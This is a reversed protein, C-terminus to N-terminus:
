GGEGTVDVELAPAWPDDSEIRLTAEDPGVDSPAYLLEAQRVEGPALPTFLDGYEGELWDVALDGSATRLEATLVTLDVNRVNELTVLAASTCGVCVTGFDLRDVDLALSPGVGEGRLPVAHVPEDPDNSSILLDGVM